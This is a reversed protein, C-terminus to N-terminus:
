GSTLGALVTIPQRRSGPWPTRMPPTRPSPCPAAGEDNANPRLSLSNKMEDVQWSLPHGAAHSATRPRRGIGSSAGTIIVVPKKPTM